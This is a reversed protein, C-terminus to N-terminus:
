RIPQMMCDGRVRRPCIRKPYLWTILVSACIRKQQQGKLFRKVFSGTQPVINTCEWDKVFPPNTGHMWQRMTLCFDLKLKQVGIPLRGRMLGDLDILGGAGEEEAAACEISDCQGPFPIRFSDYGNLLSDILPKGQKVVAGKGEVPSSILGHFAAWGGKLFGHCGSLQQQVSTYAELSM